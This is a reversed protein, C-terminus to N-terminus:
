HPGSAPVRQRHRPAAEHPHVPPPEHPLRRVPAHPVQPPVPPVHPPAERAPVGQALHPVLGPHKGRARILRSEACAVRGGRQPARPVLPLPDQVVGPPVVDARAVHQVSPPVHHEVPVADCEPVRFDRLHFVPGQADQRHKDDAGEGVFDFGAEVVGGGGVRQSEAAVLPGDGGAGRGDDQGDGGREGRLQDRLLVEDAAAEEDEVAEQVDHHPDEVAVVGVGGDVVEYGGGELDGGGAEVLPDFRRVRPDEEVHDDGPHEHFEAGPPMERVGDRHRAVREEDGKECHVPDGELPNVDHSDGYKGKRAPVEQHM